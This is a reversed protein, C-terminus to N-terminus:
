EYVVQIQPCAMAALAIVDRIGQYEIPHWDPHAALFRREQEAPGEPPAGGAGLWFSFRLRPIRCSLALRFAENIAAVCQDPGEGPLGVALSLRSLHALGGKLVEAACRAVDAAALPSGMHQLSPGHLSGALLDLSAVPLLALHDLIRECLLDEPWARVHLEILTQHDRLAARVLEALARLRGMDIRVREDNLYLQAEGPGCLARAAAATRAEAQEPAVPTVSPLVWPHAPEASAVDAEAHTVGQALHYGPVRSLAGEQWPDFRVIRGALEPPLGPLPGPRCIVIQEAGQLREALDGAALHHYTVQHGAEQALAARCLLVPSAVRQPGRGFPPEAGHREPPPAPELDIFAINM